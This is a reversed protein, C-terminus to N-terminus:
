LFLLSWSPKYKNTAPFDLLNLFSKMYVGQVGVCFACWSYLMFCGCLICCICHFSFQVRWLKKKEKVSVRKMYTCLLFSTLIHYRIWQQKKFFVVTHISKSLLYFSCNGKDPFNKGQECPISAGHSSSYLSWDWNHTMFNVPFVYFLLFTLLFWM